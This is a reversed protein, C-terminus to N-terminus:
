SQVSVVLGAMDLYHPAQGATYASTIAPDTHAALRQVAAMDHGQQLLLSIALGRIEHFTPGNEPWRGTADRAKKFGRSIHEPGCQHTHTHGQALRDSARRRPRSVIYPCRRHRMSLERAQDVSEKLGAHEALSWKLHAAASAGRQGVSKAITRCLYGDEIDDFRLGVVDGERMTTTLSIMMAIQIHPEAQEHIAWFDDLTLAQRQKAPKKKEVLHAVDDRHSFPNCTTVGKGMAWVFFGSFHSRRNHQQDYTLSDWWESLSSVTLHRPNAHKWEQAFRELQRQRDRWGRKGDIRPDRDIQWQRYQEVWYVLTGEPAERKANAQRAAEVARAYPLRVTKYSGDPRRYRYVGERGKPDNYLNPPLPKGTHKCVAMPRINRRTM